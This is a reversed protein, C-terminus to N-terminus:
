TPSGGLGWLNHLWDVRHLSGRVKNGAGFGVGGPRGGGGGQFSCVCCVCCGCWRRCCVGELPLPPLPRRPWSLELWGGFHM